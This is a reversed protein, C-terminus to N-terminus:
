KYLHPRLKRHLAEDDLRAGSRKLVVADWPRASPKFKGKPMWKSLLIDILDLTYIAERSLPYEWKAFAAHTRTTPDKLLGLILLSLEHGRVDFLSVSYEARFDAVLEARHERVLHAVLESSGGPTRGM